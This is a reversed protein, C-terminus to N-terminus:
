RTAVPPKPKVATGTTSGAAGAKANPGCFDFYQQGIHLKEWALQGLHCTSDNVSAKKPCEMWVGYRADHGNMERWCKGDTNHIPGGGIHDASAPVTFAAVVIIAAASIMLKNM